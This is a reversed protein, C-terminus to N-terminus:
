HLSFRWTTGESPNQNFHLTSNKLQKSAIVIMKCIFSHQAVNGGIGHQSVFIEVTKCMGLVLFLSVHSCKSILTNSVMGM